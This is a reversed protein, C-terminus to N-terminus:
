PKINPSKGNRPGVNPDPAGDKGIGQHDPQSLYGLCTFDFMSSGKKGRASTRCSGLASTLYHHGLRPFFLESVPFKWPFEKWNFKSTMVKSIGELSNVYGRKFASKFIIKRKGLHSINTEQLTHWWKLGSYFIWYVVIEIQEWSAMLLQHSMGLIVLHSVTWFHPNELQPKHHYTVFYSM